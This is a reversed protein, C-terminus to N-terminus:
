INKILKQKTLTSNCFDVTRNIVPPDEIFTDLIRVAIM